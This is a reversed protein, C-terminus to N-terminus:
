SAQKTLEGREIALTQEAPGVGIHPSQKIKFSFMVVFMWGWLLLPSSESIGQVLLIAGVLTPLLSLASYPRDDRLDWRPRDVAFFWARWVFALYTLGVIVVGIVGLQLFVDVWMNHAQMVSQGHDIIWGDFAPDAPNWPTAFGWGVWPNEWAKALVVDWIGERGTLDSERGVFTLLQGRLFWLAVLGGVGVVAYAVYYPTREGPRRARRMLLVTVLAVAVAAAAVYATASGARFMLFGSLAIWLWLLVRRPAGAALRIAFVIIALLCLPGLLNANGVIGQIRGGDLLNDRSWYVIPDVEGEPRPQFGPMVAHGIVVSVFLEFLFSLAVVWKLASAIARVLERWTLVSGVFLAQLTTILLLLWTLASTQAWASWAISLAAWLVYALAFMPLRRWQVPPRIVLWLLLSLVGSGIAVVAATPQGFAHVWATGSLATFLVFICWARLMLHGTKERVPAEPPASAPHKTHVAM